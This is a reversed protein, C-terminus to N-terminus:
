RSPRAAADRRDLRVRVPKNHQLTPLPLPPNAPLAPPQRASDAPEPDTSYVLKRKPATM